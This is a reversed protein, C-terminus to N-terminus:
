ASCARQSTCWPCRCGDARDCTLAVPEDPQIAFTRAGDVGRDSPSLVLASIGVQETGNTLGTVGVSEGQQHTFCRLLMAIGADSM